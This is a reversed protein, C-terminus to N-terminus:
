SASDIAPRDRVAAAGTVIDGCRSEAKFTNDLRDGLGAAANAIHEISSVIKVSKDARDSIAAAGSVIESVSNVIGLRNSPRGRVVTAATVIDGCRNEVKPSNDLRDGRGATASAIHDVGSVHYGVSHRSVPVSSGRDEGLGSLVTEVGAHVGATNEVADIHSRMDSRGNHLDSLRSARGVGSCGDIIEREAKRGVRVKIRDDFCSFGKGIESSVTRAQHLFNSSGSLQNGFVISIEPVNLSSEPANHGSKLATALGGRISRRSSSFRNGVRTTVRSRYIGDDQGNRLSGFAEVDSRDLAEIVSAFKGAADGVRDLLGGCCARVDVCDEHKGLL